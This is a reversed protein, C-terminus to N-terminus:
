YVTYKVIKDTELFFELDTVYQGESIYVRPVGILLVSGIIEKPKNKEYIRWHTRVADRIANSVAEQIGEFGKEVSGRGVGRVKPLNISNWRRFSLQQTPTRDCYAWCLLKEEQPVPNKFTIPNISKDFPRVEGFEFYEDVKRRKDYPVYDYTWGNIMGNMFFPALEKARNIAFSYLSLREKEYADLNENESRVIQVPQVPEDDEFRGPFADLEAWIQIRLQEEQMPVEHSIAKSGTSVAFSLALLTLFASIKKMKLTYAKDGHTKGYM